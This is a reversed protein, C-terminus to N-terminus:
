QKVVVVVTNRPNDGHGHNKNVAKNSKYIIKYEKSQELVAM